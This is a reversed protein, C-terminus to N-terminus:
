LYARLYPGYHLRTFILVRFACLCTLCLPVYRAFAHLCSPVYPVYNLLRMSVPSVLGNGLTKGSKDQVFLLKILLIIVPFLVALLTTTAHKDCTTTALLQM